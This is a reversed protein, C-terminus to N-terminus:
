TVRCRRPPRVQTLTACAAQVSGGDRPRPHERLWGYVELALEAASRTDSTNILAEFAVARKGTAWQRAIRAVSAADTQTPM